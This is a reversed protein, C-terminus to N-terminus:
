EPPVTMTADRRGGYSQGTEKSHDSKPRGEPRGKNLGMGEGHRARDGSRTRHIPDFGFSTLVAILYTACTLGKGVPPTIFAGTETDFCSGSGDLKYPINNQNQRQNGLFAAIFKKNRQDLGIQSWLYEDGM